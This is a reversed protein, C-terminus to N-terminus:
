FHLAGEPYNSSITALLHVPVLNKDNNSQHWEMATLPLEHENRSPPVTFTKKLRSQLVVVRVNVIIEHSLKLEMTQNSTLTRCHQYYQKHLPFIFVVRFRLSILPTRSIVRLLSVPQYKLCRKAGLRLWMKASKLQYLKLLRIEWSVKLTM